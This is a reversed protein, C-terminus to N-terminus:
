LSMITIIIIKNNLIIIVIIIIISVMKITANYDQDPIGLHEGDIDMLKLEFDSVKDQSKSEFLFTM